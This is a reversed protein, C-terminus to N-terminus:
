GHFPERVFRAMMSLNEIASSMRWSFMQMIKM